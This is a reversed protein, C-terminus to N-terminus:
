RRDIPGLLTLLVEAVRPPELGAREAALRLRARAEDIPFDLAAALVGYAQDLVRAERLMGPARQAALRTSFSLDANTVAGGAWAGSIEALQEHHGEFARRSGGYLNVGGVVEGDVVIPLSLTSAVGKAATADAFALWGEEEMASTDMAVTTDREVARLCPGGGLYQLADLVAIAEDSAVLTFTMGHELMTVSMGVVDPVVEEIRRGVVVLSELLDDEADPASLETIAETTEPTPEM